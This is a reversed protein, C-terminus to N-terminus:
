QRAGEETAEQRVFTVRPLTATRATGDRDSWRVREQATEDFVVAFAADALSLYAVLEALGHELPRERVLESLGVATRHRLAGRVGTALRTRDVYVHEFLASPDADDGGMEVTSDIRPRAPPAYLPREMPLTIAPATADIDVTFPPPAQRVRVATKEISHLLDMIRRSELWTHDDLFRRLQDSLLRVTAQTRECADLWDYHVHRLRSDREDISDIRELRELLEGFEEQRQPSLLFDYFAQFSRGQDSDAIADRDGLAVDLLEGKGGEFGAIRERLQRDLTRFNAEVERFDALLERATAAFQQYRDRQGTADLLEVNGAQVEAIERDLEHRRRRLETLRVEPDGEAGYVMQRLLEFITNLRSETGVFARPRLARLWSLAREVAPTVDYYPEDSGPPYFKRLWGAEAAAWDDLYAKASRPFRTGGLRENLAFLDDDLRSILDAAGVAGTSGEGFVRGLFSLMLAANDARLLRWAAHRTRLAEVDEYRM